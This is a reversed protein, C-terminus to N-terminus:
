NDAAPPAKILESFVLDPVKGTLDRLSARSAVLAESEETASSKPEVESGVGSISAEGVAKDEDPAAPSGLPAPVEAALKAKEAEASAAAETAETAAKEEVVALFARAQALEAAPVTALLAAIAAGLAGVRARAVPVETPLLERKERAAVDLVGDYAELARFFSSVLAGTETSSKTSFPVGDIVDQMISGSSRPKGDPAPAELLQAYEGIARINERIGLLPGTRLLAKASVLDTPALRGSEEIQQQAQLVVPVYTELPDLQKRQIYQDLGRRRPARAKLGPIEIEAQAQGAWALQQAALLFAPLIIASRRSSNASDVM